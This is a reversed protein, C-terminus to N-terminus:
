ESSWPAVQCAPLRIPLLKLSFVPMLTASPQGEHEVGRLQPPRPPTQSMEVVAYFLQMVWYESM